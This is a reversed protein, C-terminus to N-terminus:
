PHPFTRIRWIAMIYSNLCRNKRWFRDGVRTYEYGDPNAVPIIYWDLNDILDMKDDNMTETLENVFYTVVAPSIWEEAHIGGHIYLAPKDGCGGKCIKVMM